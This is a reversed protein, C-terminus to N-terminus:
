HVIKLIEWSSPSMESLICTKRQLKLCQFTQFHIQKNIRKTEKNKWSGTFCLKNRQFRFDRQAWFHCVDFRTIVRIKKKKLIGLTPNFLKIGSKPALVESKYKPTQCMKGHFICFHLSISENYGAGRINDCRQQSSHPPANHDPGERLFCLCLIIYM